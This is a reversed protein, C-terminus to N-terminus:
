RMRQQGSRRGEIKGLMQIKELSDPRWMLDFYQIKLMMRELSYELNNGKPNVLKIEKCDLPSEPPKELVVSWLSWNKTMWDVKHDLECGYLSKGAPKATFFRGPLCSGCSVWTWDRLWSSGKPSPMAAWELIRAQLIEHVSFGPLSYDMPNCLTLCSRLFKAHVCASM